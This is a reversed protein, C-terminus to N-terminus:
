FIKLQKKNNINIKNNYHEDYELFQEWTKGAFLHQQNVWRALKIFLKDKKINEHRMLYPRCGNKKLFLLREMTADFDVGSENNAFVYVFFATKIFYKRLLILKNEFSRILNKHDM